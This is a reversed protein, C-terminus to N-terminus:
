EFLSHNVENKLYYTFIIGKMAGKLAWLDVKVKSSANWVKKIEEVGLRDNLRIKALILALL